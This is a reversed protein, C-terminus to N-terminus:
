SGQAPRRQNRPTFPPRPEPTSREGHHRTGHDRSKTGRPKPLPNLRVRERRDQPDWMEKSDDLWETPDSEAGRYAAAARWAEMDKVADPTWEFEHGSLRHHWGVMEGKTVGKKKQGWHKGADPDKGILWCKADPPWLIPTEAEVDTRGILTCLLM